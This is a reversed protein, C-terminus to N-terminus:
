LLLAFVSGLCAVMVAAGLSQAGGTYPTSSGSPSAGGTTGNAGGATGNCSQYSKLQSVVFDAAQMGYEKTYGLHVSINAFSGSACYPDLADCYSQVRSALGTEQFNAVNERPFIGHKTANGVHFTENTNFTPDGMVV